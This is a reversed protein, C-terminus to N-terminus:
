AQYAALKQKTGDSFHGALYKSVEDTPQNFRAALAPLDKIDSASFTAVDPTFILQFVFTFVAIALPELLGAIIGTLVGLLLRGRYPRALGWIKVLFAIMNRQPTHLCARASALLKDPM